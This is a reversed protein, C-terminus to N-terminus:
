LSAPDVIQQTSVGVAEFDRRNHSWLLDHRGVHGAILADRAHRHWLPDALFPVFRAAEEMGLPEIDIGMENIAAALNGPSTRRDRWVHRAREAFAVMPLVVPLSSRALARLATPDFLINTDIIIRM